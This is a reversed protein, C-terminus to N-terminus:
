DDVSVGEHKGISFLMIGDRVGCIVELEGLALVVNVPHVSVFTRHTKNLSPHSLFYHMRTKSHYNTWEM